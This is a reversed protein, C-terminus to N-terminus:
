KNECVDVEQSDEEDSIEPSQQGFIKVLTAVKSTTDVNSEATIVKWASVMVRSIELQEYQHFAQILDEMTGKERNMSIDLNNQYAVPHGMFSISKISEGSNYEYSM